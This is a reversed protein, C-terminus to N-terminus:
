APRHQSSQQHWRFSHVFSTASAACSLRSSLPGPAPACSQGTHTLTHREARSVSCVSLDPVGPLSIHGHVEECPQGNGFLKSMACECSEDSTDHEWERGAALSAGSAEKDRRREATEASSRGFQSLDQSPAQPGAGISASSLPSLPVNSRTSCLFAVDGSATPPLPLHAAHFHVTDSRKTSLAGPCYPDLSLGASSGALPATGTFLFVAQIWRRDMLLGKRRNEITREHVQVKECSYGAESFLQLLGDTSFYYARTGDGRVYFNDQLKQQRSSAALRSEALDGAAYDRVLVRGFGKNLTEAISHLVQAGGTVKM